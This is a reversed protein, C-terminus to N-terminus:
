PRCKSTDSLLIKQPLYVAQREKDRNKKRVAPSNRYKKDSKAGLARKFEDATLIHVPELVALEAKAYEFVDNHSVKRRTARKKVELNGKYKEWIGQCQQKTEEPFREKASGRGPKIAKKVAAGTAGALKKVSDDAVEVPVPRKAGLKAIEVDRRLREQANTLTEMFDELEARDVLSTIAGFYGQKKELLELARLFQSTSESETRRAMAAASAIFLKLKSLMREKAKAIDSAEWVEKFGLDTTGCTRKRFFARMDHFKDYFILFQEMMLAKLDGYMEPKVPPVYEIIVIEGSEVKEDTIPTGAMPNPGVEGNELSKTLAEFHAAIKDAKEKFGPFELALNHLAVARSKETAEECSMGPTPRFSDMWGDPIKWDDNRRSRRKAWIGSRLREPIFKIETMLLDFCEIFERVFPITKKRPLYYDYIEKTSIRGGEKEAHEAVKRGATDLVLFSHCMEVIRQFFVSKINYAVQGLAYTADDLLEWIKSTGCDEPASLIKTLNEGFSSAVLLGYDTTEGELQSVVGMLIGEVIRIDENNKENKNM